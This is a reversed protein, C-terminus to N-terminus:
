TPIAVPIQIFFETGQGFQSKFEIQGKHNEIIIQRSIFLGLGSATRDPQKTTFFPQFVRKRVFEPMGVGNDSIQILIKDDIPLTVINISLPIQPCQTSSDLYKQKINAFKQELADISNLFINMFVQNLQFPYCQVLPLTAYKKIVQIGPYQDNSKLRHALILLTNNLQEHINITNLQSQETHAFNRFSAITQNARKAEVEISDLITALNQNIFDLTPEQSQQQTTSFTAPFNESYDNVIQLLHHTYQKIHTLNTLIFNIPNNIEDTVGALLQALYANKEGQILYNQTQKIEQLAQELQTAQDKTQQLLEGQEIAVALQVGVQALLDVEEDKWIRPQSTQYAVLLGWLKNSQSIPVFTENRPLDNHDDTDSIAPMLLQQSNSPVKWGDRFSDAVFKGRWNADFRYIAVRDVKLLERVAETTAKFITQIDLSQRIKDVTIALLNQREMAKDREKAKALEVAQNKVRQLYSNQTLAVGLQQAIQTVFEIENDQWQRPQSCQHICLLGWLQAEKILPAVLNARVQFRQLIEIHCQQLDGQYIDPTANVRGQRYLPEFDKSFCHDYVKDRIISNFGLAVDEYIFEGEWDNKPDFRFIGVRQAKLLQRVEVVTTQFINDLQLSERIRNIVATLAKQQQTQYRAEILLQNHQLAVGIQTGIKHLLDVEYKKWQRPSSNQYAAIVGWLKDAQLIPATAFAKTEFKELLEVHCDTLGAQYINNVTFTENNVYRGGQTHQLYTDNVQLAGVLPTWGPILSEAVFSGSWDSNFRFVGVRDAQILERIDYTISEFLEEVNLSPRIKDIIEEILKDRQTAAALQAAQSEVKILHQAQQIALNFHDAIVKVFEIESAQWERPYSCQHICLLGWLQKGRILPLVLNAKVQFRNLIQAHCDSLGAAYIDGVAQIRGQLYHIAFQEGFCHDYVKEGIVSDWPQAVDESVFEGQWDKQSDFQFIGVRDANLLQRVQTAATQFIVNLDKPERIIKILNALAKQQQEHSQFDSISFDINTQSEILSYFEM